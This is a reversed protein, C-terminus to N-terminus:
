ENKELINKYINLTKKLELDLNYNKKVNNYLLNKLDLQNELDMEMLAIAKKALDDPNDPYFLCKKSDELIDKTGSVNSALVLLGAAMAELLAVPSGEGKKITPLIFLDANHLFNNVDERRGAFFVKDNLGLKDSLDIMQEGYSNNKRGIIILRSGHNSKIIKKFGQLLVEIGKVPALNAVTIILKEKIGINFENRINKANGNERFEEINVGRPVLTANNIKPFFKRIMDKNQVLVHSALFTRIKWSNSSSGGWLMNKKTYVWPVGAIKAALPESYDSSYNFSHIIHPSIEKLKKAIILCNKLGSIKSKMPTMFNFIHLPIKSERVLDFFKGRDHLCLIHPEYLHRDLRTAINLLAKGSGATDFNPITYLIKVKISKEEM